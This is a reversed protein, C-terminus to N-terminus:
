VEKGDIWETIVINTYRGMREVRVIDMDGRILKAFCLAEDMTYFLTVDSENWRCAVVRYKMM